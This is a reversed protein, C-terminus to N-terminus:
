RPRLLVVPIDRSSGAQYADYDPWQAVMAPRGKAGQATM